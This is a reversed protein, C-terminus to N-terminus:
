YVLRFDTFVWRDDLFVYPFSWSELGVVTQGDEGLLDVVVNVSYSADDVQEVEVQIAGKEANRDRGEGSVCLVGRVDRYRIRASKGDLLRDTLEQSFVGRLYNRLDELEEIGKMDVPFYTEGDISASQGSTPLPSLDFWGYIRQAWEYAALVESELLPRASSEVMSASMDGVQAALEPKVSSAGAPASPAACGTLLLMFVLATMNKRM